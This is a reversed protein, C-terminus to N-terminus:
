LVAITLPKQGRKAFYRNCADKLEQILVQGYPGGEGSMKREVIVRLTREHASVIEIADRDLDQVAELFGLMVNALLTILDYHFMRANAKLEMVPRSLASLRIAFSIQPDSAQDIARRLQDLFDTAIPAFDVGPNNMVTQARAIVGPEIMGSGVRKQLENSAKIIQVHTQNTM